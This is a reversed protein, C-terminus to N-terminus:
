SFIMPTGSGTFPGGGFRIVYLVIVTRNKYPSMEKINEAGGNEVILLNM